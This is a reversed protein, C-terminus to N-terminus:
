QIDVDQSGATSKGRSGGDEVVLQLEENRDIVVSTM